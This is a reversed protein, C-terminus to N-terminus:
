SITLVLVTMKECCMWFVTLSVSFLSCVLLDRSSEWSSCFSRLTSMGCRTKEKGKVGMPTPCDLGVPPLSRTYYSLNSYAEWSKYNYNSNYTPPSDILHSRASFSFFSNIKKKAM